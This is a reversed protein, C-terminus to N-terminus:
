QGMGSFFLSNLAKKQGPPSPGGFFIFILGLFWPCGDLQSPQFYRLLKQQMGQLTM